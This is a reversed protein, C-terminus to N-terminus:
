SEFYKEEEMILNFYDETLVPIMKQLTQIDQYQSLVTSNNEPELLAFTFDTLNEKQTNILYEIYRIIEISHTVVILTVGAKKLDFLFEILKFSFFPHLHSEPEELILVSNKKLLDREILLQLYGFIKIGSAALKIDTTKGQSKYVTGKRNNYEVKGNIIKELKAYSKKLQPKPSIGINRIRSLVDWYVDSVGLNNKYFERYNSLALEIDLISSLFVLSIDQYPSIKSTFTELKIKSVAQKSISFELFDDIKVKLKESSNHNVIASLHNPQFVWRLKESLLNKLQTSNGDHSNLSTLVAYIMRALFSKGQGNKGCILTFKSLEFNAEKIIGLNKIRFFM